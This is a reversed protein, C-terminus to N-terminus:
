ARLEIKEKNAAYSLCAPIDEKQLYLFDDLIEEMSMGLALYGLVDYVSIRMGRICPKGSRKGPELTTRDHLIVSKKIELTIFICQVPSIGFKM